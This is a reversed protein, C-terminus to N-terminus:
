QTVVNLLSLLCLELRPAQMKQSTAHLLVILCVFHTLMMFLSHILMASQAKPLFEYLQFFM